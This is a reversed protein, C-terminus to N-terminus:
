HYDEWKLSEAKVKKFKSLQEINLNGKIKSIQKELKHYKEFANSAEEWKDQQLLKSYKKVTNEYQSILEDYEASKDEKVEETEPKNNVNQDSINPITDQRTSDSVMIKNMGSTDKEEEAKQNSTCACVMVFPLFGLLIKKM